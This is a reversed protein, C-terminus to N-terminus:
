EADRRRLVYVRTTEDKALNVRDMAVALVGPRYFERELMVIPQDSTNTLSYVEGVVSDWVFRRDLVFLTNKWLAERLGIEEVRASGPEDNAVALMKIKLASRYDEKTAADGVIGHAPETKIVVTTAPIDSPELLLMVTAGTDLTLFASVARAAGYAHPLVRIYAENHQPDPEIAIQGERMRIKEIRANQVKLRTIEHESVKVNVNDGDRVQVVQMATAPIATLALVLVAVRGVYKTIVTNM